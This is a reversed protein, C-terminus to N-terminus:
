AGKTSTPPAWGLAERLRARMREPHTGEWYIRGCRPCRAFAPATAQVYDPVLGRVEEPTADLLDENCEACRALFRMEQPRVLGLAAVERLQDLPDNSSLVVVGHLGAFRPSRTLVVAGRRALTEAERRDHLRGLRADCGLLRLWRALKGCMADVHFRM